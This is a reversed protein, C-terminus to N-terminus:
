RRHSASSSCRSRRAASPPRRVPSAPASAPAWWRARPSRSRARRPRRRGGRRADDPGPRDRDAGRHVAAGAVRRRGHGPVRGPLAWALARWDIHAREGALMLGSILLALWLPLAPVLSPALLGVVPAAVLGMGSGSSPRCSRASCPPSAWCSAPGALLSRGLDAACRGAPGSTPSPSSRPWSRSRSRAPRRAASTTARRCTCSRSARARRGLEALMREARRRSAMMAVYSAPSALADRLFQPADPADHDCLVVADGEAPGAVGAGARRRGRGAGRGRPRGDDRHHRDGGLDPQRQPRPDPRAGAPRRVLAARAADATM